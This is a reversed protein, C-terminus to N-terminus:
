REITKVYLFLSQNDDSYDNAPIIEMVVHKYVEGFRRRYFISISTNDQKFYDKLFNIDTKQLYEDLDENHVHGSTGFNRLWVSIKDSFGKEEAQEAVDMNVVSYTDDTLNIKLIKTYLNCLATHAAAQGRRDIGKKSYYKTKEDYMRQDAIKAMNVVTETNFEQKTVYGISLSLSKVVEGKWGSTVKEVDEVLSQLHEEDAFFMSVFEDGGTRYIRGYNGFTARLCEAAGKILEDGADHGLNDNVNKLGNIDIAAYVFDEEPPVDPYRLIDDEYARRNLLGTLGDRKVEIALAEERKKDEDIVQTVIMVRTPVKNADVETTIFSIRLWGVNKNRTDMAIFKKGKLREGLTTLDTFNLTANVFEEEIATEVIKKLAVNGNSNHALVGDILKNGEIREVKFDSMNILHMSYYIDSISSVITVQKKIRENAHSLKLIYHIIISGALLLWLVEIGIATWFSVLNAKTSHSIAIIYDGHLRYNCYHRYGNLHVSKSRLTTFDDEPSLIGSEYVPKNLLAKDTSGLVTGSNIDVIYFNMGSYVPMHKVVSSISNKKFADLLRVPEIGVQVIYTKSSNWTAAYMMMKALATNPTVDQCLSLNKNSLLPKFFGIQEGSEFSMGYYDPNTGGYLYGNSDFFCIEDIGMKDALKEIETIDNKINPNTELFYSVIQAKNIYDEKLEALIEQENQENTTLIDDIQNLLIKSTKAVQKKNAFALIFMEVIIAM